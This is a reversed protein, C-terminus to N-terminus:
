DDLRTGLQLEKVVLAMEDALPSPSERVILELAQPLSLGAQLGSAMLVLAPAFQDEIQRRRRSRLTHIVLAPAQYGAVGFAASLVVRQWTADVSFWGVLAGGATLGLLARRALPADFSALMDSCAGSMQAVRAESAATWRSQLYDAI